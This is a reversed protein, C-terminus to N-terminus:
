FLEIFRVLSDNTPLGSTPWVKGGRERSTQDNNTSLHSWGLDRYIVTMMQEREAATWHTDGIKRIQEEHERYM